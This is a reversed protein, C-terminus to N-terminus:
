RAAWLHDLVALAEMPSLGLTGVLLATSVADLADVLASYTHPPLGPAAAGAMAAAVARTGSTTLRTPPHSDPDV